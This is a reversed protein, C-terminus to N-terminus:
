DEYASSRPAVEDIILVESEIRFIVRWDQVRLRYEQRGSLGIVNARLALPDVALLEIKERVLKRKNCRRLAKAASVSYRIEV